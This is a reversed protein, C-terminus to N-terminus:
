WQANRLQSNTRNHLQTNPLQATSCNLLQASTRKLMQAITCNHIQANTCKLMQASSCKHMQANTCKLMQANTCKCMRANSRVTGVMLGLTRVRSWELVREVLARSVPSALTNSRHISNVCLRAINLIAITAITTSQQSNPVKTTSDEICVCFSIVNRTEM